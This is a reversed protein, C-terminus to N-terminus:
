VSQPPLSPEGDNNKSNLEGLMQADKLATKFIEQVQPLRGDSNSLGMALMLKQLYKIEIEELSKYNDWDEGLMSVEEHKVGMGSHKPMLDYENDFGLDKITNEDSDEYGQLMDMHNRHDEEAQTFDLDDYSSPMNSYHEIAKEIDQLSMKEYDFVGRPRFGNAEKYADSLESFAIQKIDVPNEIDVEYLKSEKMGFVPMGMHKDSASQLRSFKGSVMLYDFINEEKVDLNEKKKLLYKIQGLSVHGYKKCLATAFAISLLRKSKQQPMIPGDSDGFNEKLLGSLKKFRTTSFEMNKTVIKSSLAFCLM